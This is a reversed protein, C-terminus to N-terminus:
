PSYEVMPAVGEVISPPPSELEPLGEPRDTEVFKSGNFRYITERHLDSEKGGEVVRKTTRYQILWEEDGSGAPYAWKTLLYTSKQPGLNFRTAPLELAVKLDNGDAAFLFLRNEGGTDGTGQEMEALDLLLKGGLVKRLQVEVLLGGFRSHLLKSKSEGGFVGLGVQCEPAGLSYVIVEEGPAALLDGVMAIPGCGEPIESGPKAEKHLGSWLAAADVIEGKFPAVDEQFVYGDLGSLRAPVVNRPKGLYDIETPVGEVLELVHGRHLPHVVDTPFKAKRLFPTDAVVVRAPSSKAADAPTPLPVADGGQRATNPEAPTPAPVADGGQRATNPEAPTPTPVADGGQRGTNPEALAGGVDAGLAQRSGPSAKKAPVSPEERGKCASTVLLTSILLFVCKRM